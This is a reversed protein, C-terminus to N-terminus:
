SSVGVSTGPRGTHVRVVASTSTSSVCRGGPRRHCAPIVGSAPRSVPRKMPVAAAMRPALRKGKGPRLGHRSVRGWTPSLGVLGCWAAPGRVSGGTDEGLSIACMFAATAERSGSSSGGTFRELDWPNRATDFAHSVSTIGFETMNLKGLLIAGASKLKAIVTADEDPVFDNFIPTGCTTRIGATNLQDKVAVPVGHFPGRYAGRALERESARAAEMAQDRCVTVYAYLRHNLRDIRELYGEVVEVPSVQRHKILESLQSVSLFPIDAKDM